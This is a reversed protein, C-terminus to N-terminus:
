RSESDNRPPDQRRHRDLHVLQHSRLRQAFDIADKLLEDEEVEYQRLLPLCAERISAGRAFASWLETGVEDLGYYRGAEVDLLVAEGGLDRFLIGEAPSPRSEPTLPM